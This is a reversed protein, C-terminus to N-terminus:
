AKLRILIAIHESPFFAGDKLGGISESLIFGRGEQVEKSVLCNRICDTDSELQRIHIIHPHSDKIAAGKIIVNACFTSSDIHLFTTCNNAKAIM